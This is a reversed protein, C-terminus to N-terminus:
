QEANKGANLIMPKGKIKVKRIFTYHYKYKIARGDNTSLVIM